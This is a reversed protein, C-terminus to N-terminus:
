LFKSTILIPVKYCEWCKLQQSSSKCHYFGYCVDHSRSINMIRNIINNLWYYSKWESIVFPVTQKHHNKHLLFNDISPLVVYQNKTYSSNWQSCFHTYIEFNKQSTYWLWDIWTLDFIWNIMLNSFPELINHQTQNNNWNYWIQMESPIVSKKNM